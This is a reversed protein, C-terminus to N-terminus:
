CSRCESDLCAAEKYEEPTNLNKFSRRGPDFRDIESETVYRVRVESFVGRIQRADCQIRKEIVPLLQKRYIAHLPEIYEGVKPVVVDYDEALSAMYSLLSSNLFPMDCAVVINYEDTSHLLGTYIGTLPGRKASADTVVLADYSAYAQPSNTVIIVRDTANRLAKLVHEIMPIGAITLFAKDKGMRKNEGGSLVIGTM